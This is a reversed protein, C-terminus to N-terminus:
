SISGGRVIIKKIGLKWQITGLGILHRPKIWLKYKAPKDEM